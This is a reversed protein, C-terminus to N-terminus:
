PLSLRGSVKRMAIARDAMERAAKIMKRALLRQENMCHLQQDYPKAAKATPKKPKSSPLTKRRRSAM